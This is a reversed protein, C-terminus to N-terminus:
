VAIDINTRSLNIWGLNTQGVSTWGLNTQGLSTWGFNTRGVNAQIIKIYAFDSLGLSVKVSFASAEM